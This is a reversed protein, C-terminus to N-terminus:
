IVLQKGKRNLDRYLHFDAISLSPSEEALHRRFAQNGLQLSYQAHQKSSFEALTVHPTYGFLWGRQLRHEPKMGQSSYLDYLSKFLMNQSPCTYTLLIKDDKEGGLIPVYDRDASQFHYDLVGAEVFPPKVEEVPYKSGIFLLTSHFNDLYNVAGPFHEAALNKLLTTTEKESKGMAYVKGEIWTNM